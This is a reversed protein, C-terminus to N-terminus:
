NCIRVNVPFAIVAQEWNILSGGRLPDSNNDNVYVHRTMFDYRSNTKHETMEERQSCGSSSGALSVFVVVLLLM